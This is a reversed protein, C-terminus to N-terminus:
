FVLFNFLGSDLLLTTSTERFCFRGCPLGRFRDWHPPPHPTAAGSCQLPRFQDGVTTPRKPRLVMEWLNHCGTFLAMGLLGLFLGIMGNGSCIGIMSVTFAFGILWKIWGM